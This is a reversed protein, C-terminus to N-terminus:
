VLEALRVAAAQPKLHGLQMWDLYYCASIFQNADCKLRELSDETMVWWIAMLAWQVLHEPKPDTNAGVDIMFAFGKLTPIVLGIGARDIGQIMGLHVTAAAVVAGTNGASVFADYGAEKLLRIGVSISSNKKQRISSIAPEDM